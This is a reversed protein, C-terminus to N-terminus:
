DAAIPGKGDLPEGTVSVVRGIFDKGVKSVLEHHQVVAMTGVTLPDTGLHLILVCDDLIHHVIGKSGDEFMVLSHISVPQLGSVKVLFSTIGIVEGVPQGGEVLRDFHKNDSM